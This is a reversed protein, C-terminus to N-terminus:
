KVSDFADGTLDVTGCYVCRGHHSSLTRGCGTCKAAAKRAYSGSPTGDQKGERREIENVKQVLQEDTLDLRERVLEWIARNILLLRRLARETEGAKLSANNATNKAQDADISANIIQSHQQLAWFLEM